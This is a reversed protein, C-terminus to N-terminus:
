SLIIIGFILVAFAHSLIRGILISSRAADANGSDLLRMANPDQITLVLATAGFNLMQGAYVSTMRYQPMYDAILFPIFAAAIALSNMGFSSYTLRAVNTLKIKKWFTKHAMSRFFLIIAPRVATCIANSFFESKILLIILLLSILSSGAFIMEYNIKIHKTETAISILFISLVIIMRSIYQVLNALALLEGQQDETNQTRILISHADLTFSLSLASIILLEFPM